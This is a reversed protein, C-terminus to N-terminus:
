NTGGLASWLPMGLEPADTFVGDVGMKELRVVQEPSNITYVFVKMKKAHAARVWKQSVQRWSLNLSECGLQSLEKWAHRWSTFGLLYGLPIHADLSRLKLLTPHDFSSISFRDKWTPKKKLLLLLNEDIGPYVSVGEKVEINLWSSEGLLDLVESLLPVPEGKFKTNFWSGADLARLERCSLQSVKRSSAGLKKVNDDHLVVLEGDKTQHIDLEFHKAGIDLALRFAELTNEPAHASAGRHAIYIM